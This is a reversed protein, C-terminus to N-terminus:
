KGYDNSVTCGETGDINNSPIFVVNGLKLVSAVVKFIDLIEDPTFGLAECAKRTRLFCAKDDLHPSTAPSFM